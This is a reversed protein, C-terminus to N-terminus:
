TTNKQQVFTYAYGTKNARGTRGIRHIYDEYTDPIDYNIVHTVNEIDLGRAAVDTAVLIKIADERFMRLVQQRKFQPKNGHISGVKHGNAYLRRSLDEVGHKTRGFILVKKFEVQALMENLKQAKEIPSIVHIVDQEVHSSTEQVKLALKVPNKLFQAILREVNNDITACFFLAQKERPLSSILFSVDKLFGMDLM